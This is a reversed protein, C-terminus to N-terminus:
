QCLSEEPCVNIGDASASVVPFLAGCVGLSYLPRRNDLLPNIHPPSGGDSKYAFATPKDTHPHTIQHTKNDIHMYYRYISTTQTDTRQLFPTSENFNLCVYVTRSHRNHYLQVFIYIKNTIFTLLLTPPPLKPQFNHHIKRNEIM